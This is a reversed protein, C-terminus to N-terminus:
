SDLFQLVAPNTILTVREDMFNNDGLVEPSKWEMPLISAHSVLDRMPHYMDKWDRGVWESHLTQIRNLFEDMTDTDVLGVVLSDIYVRMIEGGCKQVKLGKIEHIGYSVQPKDYRKLYIFGQSKAIRESQGNCWQRARQIDDDSPTLTNDSM